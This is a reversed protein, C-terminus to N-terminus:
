VNLLASDRNRHWGPLEDGDADGLEWIALQLNVEACTYPGSEITVGSEADAFKALIATHANELQIRIQHLHSRLHLVTILEEQSIFPPVKFVIQPITHKPKVTAKAM